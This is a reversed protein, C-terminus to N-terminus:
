EILVLVVLSKFIWFLNEWRSFSSLYKTNKLVVREYIIDSTVCCISLCLERLGTKQSEYKESQIMSFFFMIGNKGNKLNLKEKNVHLRQQSGCWISFGFDHWCVCSMTDQLSKETQCGAEM